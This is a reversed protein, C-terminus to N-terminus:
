KEFIWYEWNNMWPRDAATMWPTNPVPETKKTLHRVAVTAWNRNELPNKSTSHLKWEPPPSHAPCYNQLTKLNKNYKSIEHFGFDETMWCSTLSSRYLLKNSIIVSWKVQPSLFIQEARLFNWFIIFMITAFGSETRYVARAM